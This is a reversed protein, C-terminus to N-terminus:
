GQVVTGGGEMGLRRADDQDTKFPTMQSLTYTGDEFSIQASALLKNYEQKLDNEQQMEQIIKPSFTKLAMETNVFMM